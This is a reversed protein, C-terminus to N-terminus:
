RSRGNAFRRADIGAQVGQEAAKKVQAPSGAAGNINVTINAINSVEKNTKNDYSNAVRNETRSNNNTSNNTTANSNDISNETKYNKVNSNETKYNKVNSNETKYNKVNSNETKYNKVNSNETKYNKVNSNETKYNKVNSNEINYNKTNSNNTTNRADTNNTIKPPSAKAVSKEVNKSGDSVDKIYGAAKNATYAIPNKPDDPFHTEPKNIMSSDLWDSDDKFQKAAAKQEKTKPSFDIKPKLADPIIKDLLDGFTEGIAKLKNWIWTLAKVAKGFAAEIYKYLNTFIDGLVALAKEFWDMLWDRAAKIKDAIEKFGAQQEFYGDVSDDFIAFIEELIYFVAKVPKLIANAVSLLYNFYNGRTLAVIANLIMKVSNVVSMLIPMLSKLLGMAFKFVNKVIEMIPKIIPILSKLFDMVFDFVGGFMDPLEKIIPEAMGWVANVMGMVKDMIGKFQNGSLFERAKDMYPSINRAIGVIVKNAANSIDSFFNNIKALDNVEEKSLIIRMGRRKQLEEVSKGTRLAMRQLESANASASTISGAIRNAVGAVAQFAQLAFLGKVGSAIGNIKGAIGNISSAVQEFKGKVDGLSNALNAKDPNFKVEVFLDAISLSESV